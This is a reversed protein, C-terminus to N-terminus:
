QRVKKKASSKSKVAAAKPKVIRKTANKPKPKPAGAANGADSASADGQPEPVANEDVLKLDKLAHYSATAEGDILVNVQGTEEDIAQVTGHNNLVHSTKDENHVTVQVRNNIEIKM